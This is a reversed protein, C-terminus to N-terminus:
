AADAQRIHDAWIKAAPALARARPWAAPQWLGALELAMACHLFVKDVEILLGAKPLRAGECRALLQPCTCISARGNVRLTEPVGPIMFLLGVYPFRLINRFSDLRNNGSRDALLLRREDLIAVHGAPGGRPSIDSTTQGDSSALIVLPSLSIFQRAHSDLTPICKKIAGRTPPRYLQRLRDEANIIEPGLNQM